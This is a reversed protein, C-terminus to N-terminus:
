SLNISAPKSGAALRMKGSGAVPCRTCCSEGRGAFHRWACRALYALAGVVALKVLISEM